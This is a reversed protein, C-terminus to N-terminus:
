LKELEEDREVGGLVPCVEDNVREHRFLKSAGICENQLNSPILYSCRNVPLDNARVTVKM